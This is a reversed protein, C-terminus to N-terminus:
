SYKHRCAQRETHTYMEKILTIKIFTKIYVNNNKKESKRRCVNNTHQFNCGADHKTRTTTNKYINHLRYRHNAKVLSMHMLHM